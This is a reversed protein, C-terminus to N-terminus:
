GKLLAKATKKKFRRRNGEKKKIPIGMEGQSLHHQTWDEQVQVMRNYTAMKPYHSVAKQEMQPKEQSLCERIPIKRPSEELPNQNRPQIKDPHYPRPTPNNRLRLTRLLRKRGMQSKEMSGQNYSTPIRKCPTGQFHIAPSSPKAVRSQRILQPTNQNSTAEGIIIGRKMAKPHNTVM